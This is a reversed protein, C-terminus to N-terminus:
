IGKTWTRPLTWRPGGSQPISNALKNLEYDIKQTAVLDHYNREQHREIMRKFMDTQAKEFWDLSSDGPLPEDSGIRIRAIATPMGLLLCMYRELFTIHTWVVAGSVYTRQGYQKVQRYPAKRLLGM